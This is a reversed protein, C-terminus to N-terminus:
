SGPLVLQQGPLVTGTGLHNAARLQEVLVRPDRHPAVREAIQWLTEGAQVVTTRPPGAAHSASARGLGFGAFALLLTVMVVVLRGRRTLRLTGGSPRAPPAMPASLVATSM